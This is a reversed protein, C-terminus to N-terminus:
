SNLKQRYKSKKKAPTKLENPIPINYKKALVIATMRAPLNFKSYNIILHKITDNMNRETLKDFSGDTECAIGSDTCIKLMREDGYLGFGRKILISAFENINDVSM